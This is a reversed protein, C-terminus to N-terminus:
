LQNVDLGCGTLGGKSKRSCVSKDTKIIARDNAIRHLARGKVREVPCHGLSVLDCRDVRGRRVAGVNEDAPPELERGRELAHARDRGQGISAAHDRRFARGLGDPAHKCEHGLSVIVRELPESTASASHQCESVLLHVRHRQVLDVLQRPILDLRIKMEDAEQYEM